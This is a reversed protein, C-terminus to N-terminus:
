QWHGPYVILNREQIMNKLKQENELAQFKNSRPWKSFVKAFPIYSDGTFINNEIIYSLSDDSHGPTYIVEVELGAICQKGENLIEVNREDIFELSYEPMIYSLNVVDDTLGKATIESCFIKARPYRKLLGSLGYIHDQHCHTLLVGKLERCECNIINFIQAIDGCDILYQSNGIEILYSCSQLLKNKIQKINM